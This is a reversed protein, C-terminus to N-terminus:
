ATQTEASEDAGYLLKEGVAILISSRSLMDNAMDLPFIENKMAGQFLFENVLTRWTQVTIDKDFNAGDLKGRLFVLRQVNQSVQFSRWISWFWNLIKM